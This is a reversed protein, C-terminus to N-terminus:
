RLVVIVNRTQGAVSVGHLYIPSSDVTGPLRMQMGQLQHVNAATIGTPAESVDSRQPSLGFEPWDLLQASVGASTATPTPIQASQPTSQAKSAGGCAALLGCATLGTALLALAHCRLLRATRNM